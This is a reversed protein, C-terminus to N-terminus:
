NIKTITATTSKPFKQNNGILIDIKNKWYWPMLDQVIYEGNYYVTNDIKVRTGFPYKKLLDPSVAIWKHKFPNNMNILKGSATRNTCGKCNPRYVTMKVVDQGVGIFPIFLLVVIKIYKM